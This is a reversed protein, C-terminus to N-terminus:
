FISDLYYINWSCIYIYIYIYIYIDCIFVFVGNSNGDFIIYYIQNDHDCKCKVNAYELHWIHLNLIKIINAWLHLLKWNVYKRQGGKAWELPWPWYLMYYLILIKITFIKYITISPSINSNGYINGWVSCDFAKTQVLQRQSWKGPLNQKTSINRDFLMIVICTGLMNTEIWVVGVMSNIMDNVCIWLVSFFAVADNWVYGNTSSVKIWNPLM